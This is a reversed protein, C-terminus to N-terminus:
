IRRYARLCLLAEMTWRGRWEMESAPSPANWSIPWGGDDMQRAALADLHAEILDDAFAARGVSDPRPCLQLPTVGYKSSAPDKLYWSVSDIQAVIKSALKQARPRDRAHELFTLANLIEHAEGIPKELRKWCWETASTLWRHEIGQYLLLGALSATPNPSDGGSQPDSWHSARPYDRIKATVVPVRGDPETIAALFDCVGKAIRADRVGADCLARLAIECHLPMSDPARVDPEMAHGFGGDANRYAFVAAAVADAPGDLFAHAFIARELLRANRWIFDTAREISDAAKRNAQPSM